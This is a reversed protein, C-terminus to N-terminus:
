RTKKRFYHFAVIMLLGAGLVWLGVSLPDRTVFSHSALVTVLAVPLEAMVTALMYKDFFYKLSGLVYGPIEAPMALRFLFVLWFESGKSLERRYKEIRDFPILHGLLGYLAYRGIAYTAAGGLLWGSLLFLFTLTKGWVAVAFPVLPVSSFPSLMASLAALGAFAGIGLVQHDTIYLEVTSVVSDFTYQLERSYWFGVALIIIVVVFLIEKKSM